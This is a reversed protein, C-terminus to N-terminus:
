PSPRNDALRDMIMRVIERELRDKELGQAKTHYDIAQDVFRYLRVLFEKHRKIHNPSPKAEDKYQSASQIFGVTKELLVEGVWNVAGLFVKLAITSTHPMLRLDVECSPDELLCRFCGKAFEITDDIVIFHETASQTGRYEEGCAEILDGFGHFCALTTNSLYLNDLPNM